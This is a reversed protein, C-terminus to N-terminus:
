GGLGDDGYEYKGEPHAANEVEIGVGNEGYEREGKPHAAHPRERERQALGVSVVNYAWAGREVAHRQQREALAQPSDRARYGGSPHYVPQSDLVLIQDDAAAVGHGGRHEQPRSVGSLGGDAGGFGYRLIEDGAQPDDAVVARQERQHQERRRRLYESEGVFAQEGHERVLHADAGDPQPQHAGKPLAAPQYAQRQEGGDPRSALPQEDEDDGGTEPNALHREREAAAENGEDEYEREDVGAGRRYIGEVLRQHLFIHLVLLPAPRHARPHQADPHRGHSM